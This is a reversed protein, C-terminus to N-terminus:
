HVLVSFFGGSSSQLLVQSNKTYGAWVNSFEVLNEKNKNLAPCVRTCKGCKICKNKDITPFRFGEEDPIFRIINVPCVNACAECGCCADKKLFEFVPINCIESMDVERKIFIGHQSGM